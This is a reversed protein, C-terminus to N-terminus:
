GIIETKEAKCRTGESRAAVAVSVCAACLGLSGMCVSEFLQAVSGNSFTMNFVSYPLEICTCCLFSLMGLFYLWRVRKRPLAIYLSRLLLGFWLLIVLAGMSKILSGMRYIGSPNVIIRQIVILILPLGALMGWFASKTPSPVNQTILQV